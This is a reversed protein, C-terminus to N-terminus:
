LAGTESIAEIAAQYIPVTGLPVTCVKLIDRRVKDLNGGTSLDMVADAGVDIAVKTKEVEEALDIYDPSTGINANVKTKLGRGIGIPRDLQRLRNQPIIIQGSAIGEAVIEPPVAEDRAVRRIEPTIRGAKAETIQTM